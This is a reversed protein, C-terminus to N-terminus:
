EGSAWTHALVSRRHFLSDHLELASDRELILRDTIEVLHNAEEGVPDFSQLLTHRIKGVSESCTALFDTGVVLLRRM